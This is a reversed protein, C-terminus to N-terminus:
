VIHSANARIIVPIVLAGRMILGLSLFPYRAKFPAIVPDILKKGAKAAAIIGIHTEAMVMKGSIRM